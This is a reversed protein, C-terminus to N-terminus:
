VVCGCVNKHDKNPVLNVQEEIKPSDKSPVSRITIRNTLISSAQM